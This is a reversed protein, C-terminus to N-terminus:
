VQLPGVQAHEHVIAEVVMSVLADGKLEKTLAYFILNFNERVFIKTPWLTNSKKFSLM